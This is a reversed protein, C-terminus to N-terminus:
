SGAGNETEKNEPEMAISEMDQQIRQALGSKACKYALNIAAAFGVADSGGHSKIAIHKLGLFVGGNYHRPDMYNRLRKLAPLFFVYGLRALLSEAFARRLYYAVQRAAGEAAKLAINGAFGGTVVVDVTGRAMDNGEVFGHFRITDSMTQLISAAERLEETGKTEEVGINLLGISPEPIGLLIRACDRGMVSFQVLQGASPSVTAGLDLVIGMGRESPWCAAIAPRSVSPLSRFAFKAMAMLAGTNGGSVVAEAKGDAVSKLARWMSTEERGKRLVQAPKDDMNVVVPAHQIEVRGAISPFHRLHGALEDEPGYILFRLDGNKQLAKQAGAFVIAPGQDGGMGDLSLIM